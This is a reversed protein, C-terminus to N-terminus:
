QAGANRKQGPFLEPSDAHGFLMSNLVVLPKGQAYSPDYLRLKPVFRSVGKLSDLTFARLRANPM